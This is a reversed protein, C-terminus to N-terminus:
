GELEIDFEGIVIHGPATEVEIDFRRRWRLLTFLFEQWARELDPVGKKALASEVWALDALTTQSGSQHCLRALDSAWLRITQDYSASALWQGDPRIALRTVWGTHGELTKLLKGEPVRWLRVTQDLSASALLWGGTGGPLPAPSLALGVVADTHGALTKLFKGDPLRWLRITKDLSGSALLLGDPSVALGNVSATHGALTQRLTGEPLSWLRIAQDRGGSVLLKGEPSFALAIVLDAHGRLTKVAQGKPLAWLRVTHDSGAGALLQGAPSIALTNVAGTFAQWTELALGDPLRWLRFSNDDSGSVLLRGEPSIAVGWVEGTHGALTKVAEGGPLRWLRLSGDESASVLTQGYPTVALAHVAGTHGNLTAHSTTSYGLSLGAPDCKQALQQLEIFGKQEDPSHTPQWGTEGLRRLLPVSWVAPAAQALRWMESWAQEQELLTVVVSWETDTMEALRRRQRGGALVEVFDARGTHRTLEAIRRQLWENGLQYATRLLSRDFDLAEYREWQETLLFFLARQQPERPTYPVTPALERVLSQDTELARRYFEAQAAPNQLRPFALRANKAITPDPDLCARLLPEIVEAGASEVPELLGTKLATLWRLRDPGAAIWGTQELWNGLRIHRTNAWVLCVADRGPQETLQALGALVGMQVAEDDLRTVAEALARIIDPNQDHTLELTLQTIPNM